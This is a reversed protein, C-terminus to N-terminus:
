NGVLKRAMRGIQFLNSKKMKSWIKYDWFSLAPNWILFLILNQGIEEGNQFSNSTKQGWNPFPPTPLFIRFNNGFSKRAMEALQSLKKTQGCKKQGWNKQPPPPALFIQFNNRILKRPM